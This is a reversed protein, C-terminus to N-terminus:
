ERPYVIRTKGRQPEAGMGTASPYTRMHAHQLERLMRYLEGDGITSRDGFLNTLAAIFVEQRMRDLPLVARYIAAQQDETLTM